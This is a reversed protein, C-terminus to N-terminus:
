RCGGAFYQDNDACEHSEKHLQLVLKAQECKLLADKARKSLEEYLEIELSGASNSLRRVAATYAKISERFDALLM